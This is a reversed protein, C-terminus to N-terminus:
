LLLLYRFLWEPSEGLYDQDQGLWTGFLSNSFDRRRTWKLLQESAVFPSHLLSWCQTSHANETTQSPLSHLVITQHISLLTLVFLCEEEKVFIRYTAFNQRHKAFDQSIENERFYYYWYKIWGCANIRQPCIKPFSFNAFINTKAFIHAVYSSYKWLVLNKTCIQWFRM